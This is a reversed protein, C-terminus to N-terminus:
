ITSMATTTGIYCFGLVFGVTFAGIAEQALAFGALSAGFSLFGYQILKRQDWTVFVTGIALGGLCAGLGWTAYLWKYTPSRAAIGFNLRAIAPFLGVYPLSLLSSATLALFMRTSVSNAREVR